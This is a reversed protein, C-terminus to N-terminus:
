KRRPITKIKITQKRNRSEREAKDTQVMESMPLRVVGDVKTVEEDDWYLGQSGKKDSM